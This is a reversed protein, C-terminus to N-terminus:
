YGGLEKKMEYAISGREGVYTSGASMRYLGRLYTLDIDTLGAPHMADPCNPALLNTITPVEQCSDYSKGDSLSLMAIYDALAGIEQGAIKRTDVIVLALAFESKLGDNGRFGSVHLAGNLYPVAAVGPLANNVDLGETDSKIFGWFDETVTSHWGQIPLRMTALAEDQSRYHYGLVSGHKTRLMDLLEQPQSTALVVVNPRCPEHKDLPAGAAMAVKIIRQTIFTNFKEPLGITVPCIGAKWRAIKGLWPSPATHSIVFNNLVEESRLNPATVIVSEIPPSPPATQASASLMLGSALIASLITKM